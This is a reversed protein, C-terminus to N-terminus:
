ENGCHECPTQTRINGCSCRWKHASTTTISNVFYPQEPQQYNNQPSEHLLKLISKTLARNLTTEEILEGFGYILWSSLLASIPGLLIILIYFFHETAICLVISIIISLISGLIFTAIALGKIKEGINNYM